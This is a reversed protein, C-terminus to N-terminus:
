RRSRGTRHAARLGVAAGASGRQAIGARGGPLRRGEQALGHEGHHHPQRRPYQRRQGRLRLECPCRGREHDQRQPVRRGQPDQLAVDECRPEGGLERVPEARSQRQCRPHTLTDYVSFIATTLQHTGISRRPDHSDITAGGESGIRLHGGRKPAAQVSASWLSTASAATVGLAGAHQMFERRTLGKDRAFRLLDGQRVDDRTDKEDRM